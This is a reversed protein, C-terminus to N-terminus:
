ITAKNAFANEPNNLKACINPSALPDTQQMYYELTEFGTAGADTMFAAFMDGKNEWDYDNFKGGNKEYIITAWLNSTVLLAFFLTFLKKM